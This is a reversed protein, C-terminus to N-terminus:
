SAGDEPAGLTIVFKALAKGIAPSALDGGNMADALAELLAWGHMRVDAREEELEKIRDAAAFALKAIHEAQEVTTAHLEAIQEQLSAITHWDGQRSM